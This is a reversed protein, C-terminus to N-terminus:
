KKENKPLIHSPCITLCSTCSQQRTRIHRQSEVQLHSGTHRIPAKAHDTLWQTCTQQNISKANIVKIECLIDVDTSSLSSHKTLLKQAISFHTSHKNENYYLKHEVKRAAQAAHGCKYCAM